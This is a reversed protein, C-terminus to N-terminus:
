RQKHVDNSANGAFKGLHQLLRGSECSALREGTGRWLLLLSMLLAKAEIIRGPGNVGGEFDIEGGRASSAADGGTGFVFLGLGVAVAEFVKSDM